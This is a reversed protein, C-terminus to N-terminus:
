AELWVALPGRAVDAFRPEVLAGAAVLREAVAVHDGPPGFRSGHVAWGLPTDLDTAARAFPNAGLTLLREVVGPKGQWSAMHLLTGNGWGRLDVGYLEVVLDVDERDLAAEFVAERADADLEPPRAPREGRAVAGILEDEPSVATSAGLRELDAVLDARGRRVALAYATRGDRGAVDLEAGHGALLRVFEPGRGRKVAHHLATGETGENPDAGRELLLRVRELRDYDLAHALANTGKVSAGHELLLRTGAADAVEVSHYLSDGFSPSLRDDPDAGAELLVRM